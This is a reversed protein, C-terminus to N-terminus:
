GPEAPVRERDHARRGTALPQIGGPRCRRASIGEFRDLLAAGPRDGDGACDAAPVLQGDAVAPEAEVAAEGVRDVRGFAAEGDGVAGGGGPRRARRACAPRRRDDRRLERRRGPAAVEDQLRLKRRGEARDGLVPGIREVSARNCFRDARRAPQLFVVQGRIVRLPDLREPKGIAADVHELQRGRRLAHRRELRETQEFSV